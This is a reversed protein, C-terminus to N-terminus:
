RATSRTRYVDVAILMCFPQLAVVPLSSLAPRPHVRCQGGFVVHAVSSCFVPCRAPRVALRPM